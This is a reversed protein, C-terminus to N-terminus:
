TTAAAFLKCWKKGTSYFVYTYATTCTIDGLAADGDIDSITVSGSSFIPSISYIKGQAEAVSPLYINFATAAALDIFVCEEDVSMEHADDADVLNIVNGTQTRTGSSRQDGTGILDLIVQKSGLM